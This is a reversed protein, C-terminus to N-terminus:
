LGKLADKFEGESMRKVPPSKKEVIPKIVKEEIVPALMIKHNDHEYEYADQYGNSWKVRVWSDGPDVEGVVIGINGAGGDQNGYDWDPGRVVEDDEKLEKM